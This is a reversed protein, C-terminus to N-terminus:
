EGIFDSFQEISTPIGGQAESIMDEILFSGETSDISCDELYRFFREQENLLFGAILQADTAKM